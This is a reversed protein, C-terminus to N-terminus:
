DVHLHDVQSREPREVRVGDDGADGFRVAGDNGSFSPGVAADAGLDDIADLTESEVLEVSGDLAYLGHVDGHRVVGLELLEHNGLRRTDDFGDLTRKVAGSGGSRVRARDLHSIALTNSIGFSDGVM